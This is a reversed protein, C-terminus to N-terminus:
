GREIATHLRDLHNAFEDVFDDPTFQKAKHPSFVRYDGRGIFYFEPRELTVVHTAAAFCPQGPEFVLYTYGEALKVERYRKGSHTAVYLDEASLQEKHFTWGDKYYDCGAEACTAKRYHTKIPSAIAHTKYAYPGMARDARNSSNHFGLNSM